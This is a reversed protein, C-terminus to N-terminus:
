CTYGGYIQNVLKRSLTRAMHQIYFDPDIMSRLAGMGIYECIVCDVDNRFVKVKIADLKSIYSLIVRVGYESEVNQIKSQLNM